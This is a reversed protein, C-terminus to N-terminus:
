LVRLTTTYNKLYLNCSFMRLSDLVFLLEMKLIHVFIFHVRYNVLHWLHLLFLMVTDLEMVLETGLVKQSQVFTFYRCNNSVTLFGDYRLVIFCDVIMLYTVNQKGFPM